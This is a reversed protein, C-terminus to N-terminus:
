VFAERDLFVSDWDYLVAIGGPGMRMNKASWDRHGVVTRSGPSRMARLAPGAVEGIWEAGRKTAEFDFLANHPRPWTAGEPPLPRRPLGDVDRCAEAEAVFRALGVAMARRVGPVRADTPVGARDYAMGVAWGPGLASVSTLVAPAPFGRAGMTVQVAMQAALARPDTGGPWVKVVIRSGDALAVTAVAGVSLEVANVATPDFCQGAAWDLVMDRATEWDDTGFVSRALLRDGADTWSGTM